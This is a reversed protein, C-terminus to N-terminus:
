HCTTIEGEVAELTKAVIEDIFNALMIQADEVSLHKKNVMDMIFLTLGRTHTITKEM